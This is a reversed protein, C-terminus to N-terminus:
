GVVIVEDGSILEPHLTLEIWNAVDSDRVLFRGDHIDVRPPGV